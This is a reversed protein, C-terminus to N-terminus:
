AGKQQAEKGNQMVMRQGERRGRKVHGEETRGKYMVERQGGKRGIIKADGEGKERVKRQAEKKM